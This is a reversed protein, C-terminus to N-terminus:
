SLFCYWQSQFHVQCSLCFAVSVVVLVRLDSVSKRTQHRLAHDLGGFQACGL